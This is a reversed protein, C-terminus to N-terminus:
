FKSSKSETGESVGNYKEHMTNSFSLVPSWFLNYPNRRNIQEVSRMRHLGLCPRRVTSRPYDIPVAPKQFGQVRLSAPM